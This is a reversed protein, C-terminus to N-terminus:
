VLVRAVSSSLTRGAHVWPLLPYAGNSQIGFEYNDPSMEGQNLRVRKRDWALM